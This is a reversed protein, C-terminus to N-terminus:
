HIHLRNMNLKFYQTVSSKKSCNFYRNHPEVRTVNHYAIILRMFMRVNFSIFYMRQCIIANKEKEINRNTSNHTM